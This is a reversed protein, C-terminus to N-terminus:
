NLVSLITRSRSSQLKTMETLEFPLDDVRNRVISLVRLSSLNQSDKSIRRVRNRSIDLIELVPLKYMGKPIERFVNARINLYRLQSCEAFRLPIHWIQNSALSLREVENKILDVVNEPLRKIKSHGLNLSLEPRVAAEEIDQLGKLIDHRARELAKQFLETTRIPTPVAVRPQVLPSERIAVRGSRM